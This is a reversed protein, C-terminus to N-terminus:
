IIQIYSLFRIYIFPIKFYIQSEKKFKLTIELLNENLDCKRIIFSVDRIIYYYYIRQYSNAFNKSKGKCEKIIIIVSIKLIHFVFKQYYLLEFLDM